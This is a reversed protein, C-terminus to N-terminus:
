ELKSNVKASAEATMVLARPADEKPMYVEVFQLGKADNFGNDKLLKDLEDRSKVQIKRSTENTGGFVTVLEKFHWAAIDNYEAEM